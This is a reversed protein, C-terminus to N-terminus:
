WPAWGLKSTGVGIVACYVAFIAFVIALIEFQHDMTFRYLHGLSVTAKAGRILRWLPPVIVPSLALFYLVGVAIIQWFLEIGSSSIDHIAPLLLAFSSVDKISLAFALAFFTITKAKGMRNTLSTEVKARLEPHPMFLYVSVTALIIGVALWVAGGLPDSGTHPKPLSAAGLLLATCAIAFASAAGAFVALSRAKWPTNSAMLIQLCLLSPTLAAGIGLPAIRWILELM